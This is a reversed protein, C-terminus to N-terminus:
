AAPVEESVRRLSRQVARRISIPIRRTRVYWPFLRTSTMGFLRDKRFYCADVRELAFLDNKSTILGFQDSCACVFHQRILERLPHNYRGYPYAFCTVPASLVDELMAKSDVIESKAQEFPLRTLDPHTLTHAGFIIAHRRMERIMEWSLMSHQGLPPLQGSARATRKKGVTIFVTASMGYRQLTPLAVDYITQYGDDFTLVLSREPFPLRQHLFEVAEPLSITRYGREHLRAMGRRFVEPSFSIVSSRDDLTHFTFIPLFPAV